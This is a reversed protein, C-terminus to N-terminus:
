GTAGAHGACSGRLCVCIGDMYSTTQIEIEYLTSDWLLEECFRRIPSHALYTKLAFIDRESVPPLWAAQLKPNRLVFFTEVFGM